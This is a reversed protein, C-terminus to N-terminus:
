SILIDLVAFDREPAVNTLPVSKTEKILVTDTVSDYDGGQLHDSLLGKLQLHMQLSDDESPVIKRIEEELMEKVTMKIISSAFCKDKFRPDLITALSLLRNKKIGAFRSKLSKIMEGKMFIFGKIMM